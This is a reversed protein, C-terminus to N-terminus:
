IQRKSGDRRFIINKAFTFDKISNEVSKQTEALINNDNHNIWEKQRQETDSDDSPNVCHRPFSDTM